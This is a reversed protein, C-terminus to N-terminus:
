KRPALASRVAQAFDKEDFPKALFADAGALWSKGRSGSATIMVIPMKTNGARVEKVLQEGGMPQMEWDSIMLAYQRERLLVLAAQGDEAVDVDAFGLANLHQSVISRVTQSDDVVLAAGPTLMAQM